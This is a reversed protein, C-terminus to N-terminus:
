LQSLQSLQTSWTTLKHFPKVLKHVCYMLMTCIIRLNISASRSPLQYRWRWATDSFAVMIPRRKHWTQWFKSLHWAYSVCLGGQPIGVSQIPFLHQWFFYGHKSQNTLRGSSQTQSLIFCTSAKRPASSNSVFNPLAPFSYQWACCRHVSCPSSWQSMFYVSVRSSVWHLSRMANLRKGRVNHTLAAQKTRAIFTGSCARTRVNIQAQGM